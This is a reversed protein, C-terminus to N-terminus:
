SQDPKAKVSRLLRQVSPAYVPIRGGLIDVPWYGVSHLLDSLVARMARAFSRYDLGSHRGFPEEGDVFHGLLASIWEQSIRHDGALEWESLVTKAVHRAFNAVFPLGNQKLSAPSIPVCERNAGLFFLSLEPRFGLFRELAPQNAYDSAAILQAIADDAAVGLRAKNAGKDIASYRGSGLDIETLDPVGGHSPRYCTGLSVACYTLMVFANHRAVFADQDDGAQLVENSQHIVALLSALFARLAELTPCMPSGVYGSSDSPRLAFDVAPVYAVSLLEEAISRVAFFEARQISEVSPTAYFRGDEGARDTQLTVYTVLVLNGATHDYIKQFLARGLRAFSVRGALGPGRDTDAEALCRKLRQEYSERRTRTGVAKAFPYVPQGKWGPFKAGILQRMRPGIGWYDPSVFDQRVPRCGPYNGHEARYPIRVAPILWEAPLQGDPSLLLTLHLVKSPRTSRVEISQATALALGRALVTRALIALEFEAVGRQAEADLIELATAVEEMALNRWSLTLNQNLMAQWARPDGSRRIALHFVETSLVDSPNLGAEISGRKEEESWRTRTYTIGPVETGGDSSLSGYDNASEEQPSDEERLEETEEDEAAGCYEVACPPEDEPQPDVTYARISGPDEAVRLLGRISALDRDLQRQLVADDAVPFSARVEQRATRLATEIRPRYADLPISSLVRRYENRDRYRNMAFHRIALARRYMSERIV